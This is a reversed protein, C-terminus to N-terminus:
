RVQLYQRCRAGLNSDPQIDVCQRFHERAERMAGQRQLMKALNFHPEAYNDPCKQLAKRYQRMAKARHGLAEHTLGLNNYALCMQPKLFVAMELHELAKSYEGLNYQAWGLNNHALEPTPYMPTELLKKFATRAEEWRKLDLYVSGLNNRAAHFNPKIELAKRYHDIAQEYKKRGSYVFGLLFHAKAMKPDMELAKRLERIALHIRHNKFYGKGMKFHWDADKVKDKEGNVTACGGGVPVFAVSLTLALLWTGFRHIM